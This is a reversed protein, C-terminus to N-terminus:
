KGLIKNLEERSIQKQKLAVASVKECNSLFAKLNRDSMSYIEKILHDSLLDGVKDRVIQVAEYDSLPKMELVKNIRQKVSDSFISTQGMRTAFIVSRIYNQDYYYKIRECNKESLADIDDLLVIMNKPKINLIRGLTGNRKKMLTEIDLSKEMKKCDVYAIKRFGGYKKIMEKLLKTKGTGEEGEVLVMNGANVAYDLENILNEFGYTEGEMTFPNEDYDLEEYWETM